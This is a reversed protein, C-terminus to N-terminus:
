KHRNFFNLKMKNLFKNLIKKVVYNFAYWSSEGFKQIDLDHSNMDRKLFYNIGYINSRSAMILDFDELNPIFSSYYKIIPTILEMEKVKKPDHDIGHSDSYLKYIQTSKQHLLKIINETKQLLEDSSINYKNNVKEITGTKLFDLWTIQKDLFYDVAYLEDPGCQSSDFKRFLWELKDRYFPDVKYYDVYVNKLYIPKEIKDEKEIKAYLEWQLDYLKHIESEMIRHLNKLDKYIELSSTKSANGPIENSKSNVHGVWHYFKDLFFQIPYINNSVFINCDIEDFLWKLKTRYAPDVSYNSVYVNKLYAPKQLAAKNGIKAYLDWQLDHIENVKIAVLQFAQELNEYVTTNLPQNSGLKAKNIGAMFKKLFYELTYVDNTVCKDYDIEKFLWQLKARYAPDVPRNTLFYNQLYRPKEIGKKNEIKNYIEWQFDYIENMRSEILQFSNKLIEYTSHYSSAYNKNIRGITGDNQYGIWAIFKTLFHNLFYIDSAVGQQPDLGSFLWQLKDRYFPDVSRYGVYLDKLYVPKEFDEKNEIKQYVQCQLDYIENMKSEIAQFANKLNGYTENAPKLYAADINKIYESIQYGMWAIYQTMFYHLCYFDDKECRNIEFKRFLWQIKPRFFPAVQNIDAYVYANMRIPEPLKESYSDAFKAIKEIVTQDNLEETYVHLYDLFLDKHQNVLEHTKNYYWNFKETLDLQFWEERTMENLHFATTRKVNFSIDQRNTYYGYNESFHECDKILSRICANKDRRQIHILKVQGQFVEKILPIIFAYGNGVVAEYKCDEFIRKCQKIIEPDKTHFYADIYNYSDRAGFEHYAEWNNRASQFMRNLLENLSVTGDRGSGIAIIKLKM